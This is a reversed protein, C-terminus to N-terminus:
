SIPPGLNDRAQPEVCLKLRRCFAVRAARYADRTLVREGDHVSATRCRGIDDRKFVFDLLPNVLGETNFQTGFGHEYAELLHLPLDM